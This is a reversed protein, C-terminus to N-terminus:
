RTGSIKVWNLGIEMEKSEHKNLRKPTGFIMTETKVKKLNVVLENNDFWSILSNMDESLKKEIENLSSSSMSMVTYDAYAIIKSHKLVTYATNLQM